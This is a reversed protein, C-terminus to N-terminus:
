RVGAKKLEAIAAEVTAVEGETLDARVRLAQLGNITESRKTM